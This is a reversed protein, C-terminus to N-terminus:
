PNRHKSKPKSANSRTPTEGASTPTIASSRRQGMWRSQERTELTKAEHRPRRGFRPNDLPETLWGHSVRWRACGQASHVVGAGHPARRQHTDRSRSDRLLRLMSSCSALGGSQRPYAGLAGVVAHNGARCRGRRMSRELVLPHARGGTPASRVDLRRPMGWAPRHGPVFRHKHVPKGSNGDFDLSSFDSLVWCCGVGQGGGRSRDRDARARALVRLVPLRRASASL